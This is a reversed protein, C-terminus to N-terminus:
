VFLVGEPTRKENEPLTEPNQGGDPGIPQRSAVGGLKQDTGSGLRVDRTPIMRWPLRRREEHSADRGLQRDQRGRRDSSHGGPLPQAETRHEHHGARRERHDGLPELCGVQVERRSTRIRQDISWDRHENRSWHRDSRPVNRGGRYRPPDGRRRVTLHGSLFRHVNQREQEVPLNRDPGRRRQHCPREGCHQRDGTQHEGTQHDHHTGPRPGVPSPPHDPARSGEPM